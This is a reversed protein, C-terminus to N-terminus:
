CGGGDRQLPGVSGGHDARGAVGATLALVTVNRNGPLTLSVATKTHDLPLTYAYLYFPGSQTTGDVTLRYAMSVANSEGVYHQPTKWDSLSQHLVTKTGDSYTVTFSQNVQNGNVGTGLLTVGYYQGVPLTLTSGSAASVEGPEVVYRIQFSQGSWTVGVRSSIRRTCMAM